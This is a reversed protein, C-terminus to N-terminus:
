KNQVQNKESAKPRKKKTKPPNKTAPIQMLGETEPKKEDKKIMPKETMLKAHQIPMKADYVIVERVPKKKLRLAFLTESIIASLLNMKKGQIIPAM